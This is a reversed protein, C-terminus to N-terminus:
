DFRLTGGAGTLICRDGFRERMMCIAALGTCHIPAVLRPEEEALRDIVLRRMANDASMLHMGAVVAYLPEGPFLTKAYRAAAVIGKHSCGSFLLIGKGKQRIALFQEHSMTDRRLGGAGDPRYFIETPQLEPVDPVTGSIVTDEDPFLPGDTLVFRDRLPALEEENWRIGCDYDDIQGDTTGYTVGFADRHIYIRARRNERCFRLLGGTHDFHGHSIVCLDATSLDIGKRAANESFLESAGTDFLIRRVGTDIWLSLGFEARCSADKVYNESLLTVSIL